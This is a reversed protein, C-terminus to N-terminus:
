LQNLRDDGPTQHWRTRTADSHPSGPPLNERRRSPEDVTGAARAALIAEYAIPSKMECSSHRRIRNYWDIFRAVERRAAQKTAFRRSGSCSGSWPRSSRSPPPTTSASGARGMSQTIALTACAPRVPGRQIRQGPRHPLHRRRRGRRPRRRGDQDGGTALEADHHESLGFGVIRRSALDEVTALYLKGEDTPVETLDGCWKRNIAPATFDRRVLDPDTSRGQGSPDALAASAERRAILGQRAMSAAVSKKSVRWGDEVLDALVRPSGYRGGSTDFSPKVAADLSVRRAQRPTPAPRAVQLVVVRQSGWRGARRDHPARWPRDEPRRRVIGREDRRRRSGCSWQDSSSM